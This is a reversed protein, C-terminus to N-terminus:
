LMALGFVGALVGVVAGRAGVPVAANTQEVPGKGTTTPQGHTVVATGNGGSPVPSASASSLVPKSTIMTSYGTETAQSFGGTASGTKTLVPYGTASEKTPIADSTSTSQGWGPLYSPSYSATGSYQPCGPVTTKPPARGGGCDLFACIEGNTPDWYVMSAGGFVVTSSSTCGQLDTKALALTAFTALSLITSRM